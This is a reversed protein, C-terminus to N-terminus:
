IKIVCSIAYGAVNDTIYFNSAAGGSVQLLIKRGSTYKMVRFLMDGRNYIELFFIDANANGPNTSMTLGGGDAGFQVTKLVVKTTMNTFNCNYSSIVEQAQATFTGILLCATLIFKKM